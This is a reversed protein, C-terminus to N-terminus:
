KQRASWQAKSEGPHMFTCPRAVGAEKFHCRDGHKCQRVNLEALNHAFKCVKHRCRSKQAVSRCMRTKTLDVKPVPAKAYFAATVQDAVDKAAERKANGAVTWAAEKPAQKAQAPRAMMRVPKVEAMFRRLDREDDWEEKAAAQEEETMTIDASFHKDAERKREAAEKAAEKAALAAVVSAANKVEWAAREKARREDKAQRTATATDAKKTHRHSEKRAREMARVKGKARDRAKMLRVVKEHHAKAKADQYVQAKKAAAKIHVITWDVVAGYQHEFQKQLGIRDQEKCWADYEADMEEVPPMVVAKGVTPVLEFDEEMRADFEREMEALEFFGFDEEEVTLPGFGNPTLSGAELEALEALEAEVAGWNDYEEDSAETAGYHSDAQASMTQYEYAAM